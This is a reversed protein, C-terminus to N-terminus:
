GRCPRGRYPGGSGAARIGHPDCRLTQLACSSPAESSSGETTFSSLILKFTALPSTTPRAPQHARPSRFEALAHKAVGIAGVDAAFKIQISFFDLRSRRRLWRGRGQRHSPLGCPRPGSAPVCCGSLRERDLRLRTPLPRVMLWSILHVLAFLQPLSKVDLRGIQRARHAVEGAAVLLLHHERFPDERLRPASGRRVVRPM